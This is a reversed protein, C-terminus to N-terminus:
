QEVGVMSIRVIIIYYPFLADYIFQYQVDCELLTLALVRVQSYNHTTSCYYDDDCSSYVVFM